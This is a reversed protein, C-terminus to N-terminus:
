WICCNLVTQTCIELLQTPWCILFAEPDILQESEEWEGAKTLKSSVIYLAATEYKLILIEIM